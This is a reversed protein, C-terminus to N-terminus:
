AEGRRPLWGRSGRSALDALKPGADVEDRGLTGVLAGHEVVPLMPLDHEGMREVASWVTDTTSLRPAPLM